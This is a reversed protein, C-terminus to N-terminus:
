FILDFFDDIVSSIDSGISCHYTGYDKCFKELVDRYKKRADSAAQRAEEVETARKKRAESEAKKIGMKEDYENEAKLCSEETNYYRKTKESYYVQKM